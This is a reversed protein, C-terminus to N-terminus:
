LAVARRAAASRLRDAPSRSVSVKIIAQLDSRERRDVCAVDDARRLDAKADIVAARKQGIQLLCRGSEFLHGNGTEAPRM